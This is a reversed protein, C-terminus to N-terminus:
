LFDEQFILGNGGERGRKRGEGTIREKQRIRVAVSEAPETVVVRKRNSEELLFYLNVV